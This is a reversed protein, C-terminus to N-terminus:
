LSFFPLRHFLQVFMYIRLEILSLSHAGNICSHPLNRLYCWVTSLHKMSIDPEGWTRILDWNNLLIQFFTFHLLSCVIACTFMAFARLGWHTQPISCLINKVNNSLACLFLTLDLSIIIIYPRLLNYFNM